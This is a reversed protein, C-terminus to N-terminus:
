SLADKTQARAMAEEYGFRCLDEVPLRRLEAVLHRDAELQPDNMLEVADVGQVEVVALM